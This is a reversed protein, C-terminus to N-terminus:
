DDGGGRQGEPALAQRLEGADMVLRSGNERVLVAAGRDLEVRVAEADAEGNDHVDAMLVTARSM